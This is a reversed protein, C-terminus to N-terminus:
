TMNRYVCSGWGKKTYYENVKNDQNMNREIKKSWYDTNTEPIEGHLPRFHWFCSFM